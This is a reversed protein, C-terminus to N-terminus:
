SQIRHLVTADNVIVLSGDFRDDLQEGTVLSYRIKGPVRMIAPVYEFGAAVSAYFRHFGDQIRYDYTRYRYPTEVLRDDLEPLKVLPVPYIEAGTVIENLVKVMRQRGFGHFDNPSTPSRLQPEIEALCVLTAGPKSRFSPETAVYGNFGAEQLWDDPIEFSCPFNPLQFLM